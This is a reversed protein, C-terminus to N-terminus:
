KQKLGVQQEEPLLDGEIELNPTANAGIGDEDDDEGDEEGGVEEDFDNIEGFNAGDEEEVKVDTADDSHHDVLKSVKGDSKSIDSLPRKYSKPVSNIEIWPKQVSRQFAKL